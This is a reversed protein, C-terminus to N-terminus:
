PNPRFVEPGNGRHWLAKMLVKEAAQQPSLEEGKYEDCELWAKEGGSTFGIDRGPQVKLEFRLLKPAGDRKLISDSPRLWREILAEIVYAEQRRSVKVNIALTDGGRTVGFVCTVVFSLEPFEPKITAPYGQAEELRNYSEILEVAAQRFQTWVTLM